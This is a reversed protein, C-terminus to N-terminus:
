YRRGVFYHWAFGPCIDWQHIANRSYLTVITQLPTSPPRPTATTRALYHISPFHHLLASRHISMLKERQLCTHNIQILGMLPGMSFMESPYRNELPDRMIWPFLCSGHKRAERKAFWLTQQTKGHFSGLTDLLSERQTSAKSEYFSNFTLANLAGRVMVLNYRGSQEDM